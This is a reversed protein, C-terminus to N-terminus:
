PYSACTEDGDGEAEEGEAGRARHPLSFPATRQQEAGFPLRARTERIPIPFEIVVHQCFGRSAGPSRVNPARDQRGVRCHRRAPEPRRLEFSPGKLIGFAGRGQVAPVALGWDLRSRGGDIEADGVSM